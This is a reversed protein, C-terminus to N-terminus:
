VLGVAAAMPLVESSHARKTVAERGVVVEVSGGQAKGQGEGGGMRAQRGGFVIIVATFWRTLRPNSCRYFVDGNMVHNACVGGVALM